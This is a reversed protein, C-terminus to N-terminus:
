WEKLYALSLTDQTGREAFVKRSAGGYRERRSASDAKIAVM